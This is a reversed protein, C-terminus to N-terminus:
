KNNKSQIEEQLEKNFISKAKLEGKLKANESQLTNARLTSETNGEGKNIKELIETTINILVFANLQMFWIVHEGSVSLTYENKKKM